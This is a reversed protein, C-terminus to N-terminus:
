AQGQELAIEREISQRDREAIAMEFLIL